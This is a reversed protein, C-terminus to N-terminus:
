HSEEEDDDGQDDDGDTDISTCKCMRDSHADGCPELEVVVTVKSNGTYILDLRNDDCRWVELVSVTKDGVIESSALPRLVGDGSDGSVSFKFGNKYHVNRNFYIQSNMSTGEPVDSYRWPKYTMTFDGTRSDFTFGDLDGATSQPYTRSLVRLKNHSLSTGDKASYMSEGEPTCTTLDEYQKFQWYMWSAQFEDALQMQKELEEMDGVTDLMAGFETMILGTNLREADKQRMVMFERDIVSCALEQGITPEMLPCYIHYSIASRGAYDPGGPVRDFGSPWYDITVGEFFIIKEDDVQRIKAAISEYMPQLFRSETQKPLLLSKDRYIDGLWPENILEYGLVNKSESFRSAVKQWFGGLSDWLGDRDDYLCQFMAGVEDAMYFKFFPTELCWDLAPNGDEDMRVSSANRVPAPFPQLDAPMHKKCTEVVYDAVGEGCFDRSFLDQHLDLVVSIDHEGLLKVITDVEDLYDESFAGEAGDEVGPWMVGLRIVNFGWRQLNKADIRSLTSTADFGKSSPLWPAIKFVANQGRYIMTRGDKDVFNKNKTQIAGQALALVALVLALCTMCRLM